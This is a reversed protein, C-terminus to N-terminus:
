LGDRVIAMFILCFGSMVLGYMDKSNYSSALFFMNVLIGASIFTKLLMDLHM